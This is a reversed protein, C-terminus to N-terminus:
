FLLLFNVRGSSGMYFGVATTVLVLLTIRPKTLEMLDAVRTKSYRDDEIISAERIVQHKASRRERQARVQAENMQAERQRAQAEGIPAERQRAQAEGVAPQQASM